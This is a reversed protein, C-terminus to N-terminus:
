AGAVPEPQLWGRIRRWTQWGILARRGWRWLARPRAVALAVLAGAVWEPHSRMWRAGARAGDAAAFAPALAVAHGALEERLENSRMQLRQKKLALELANM